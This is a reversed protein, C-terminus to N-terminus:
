SRRCMQWNEAKALCTLPRAWRMSPQAMQALVRRATAAVQKPDMASIAEVAVGGHDMEHIGEYHWVDKCKGKVIEWLLPTAESHRLRGLAFMLETPLDYRFGNYSNRINYEDFGFGLKEALAASAKDEIISRLRRLMAPGSQTADLMLLSRTAARAVRPDSDDLRDSLASILKDSAPLMQGAAIAADYREIPASGRLGDLMFTVCQEDAKGRLGILMRMAHKSKPEASPYAKLMAAVDFSLDPIRWALQDGSRFGYFGMVCDDETLAQGAILKAAIQRHFTRSFENAKRATEKDIRVGTEPDIPVEFYGNLIKANAESIPKGAIMDRGLKEIHLMASRLCWEGDGLEDREGKTIKPELKEALTISDLQNADLAEGGFDIMLHM